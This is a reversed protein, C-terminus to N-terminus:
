RRVLGQIAGPALTRGLLLIDDLKGALKEEGPPGLEGPPPGAELAGVRGVIVDEGRGGAGGCLPWGVGAEEVEEMLVGELM